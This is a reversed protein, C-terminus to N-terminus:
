SSFNFRDVIQLFLVGYFDICVFKLMRLSEVIYFWVFCCPIPSSIQSSPCCYVIKRTFDATLEYELCRWNWAVKKQLRADPYLQLMPEYTFVCV